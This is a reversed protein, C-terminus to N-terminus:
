PRDPNRARGTMSTPRPTYRSDETAQMSAGLM